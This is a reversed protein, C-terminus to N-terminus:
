CLTEEWGPLTAMALGEADVFDVERAGPGAILFLMKSHSADLSFNVICVPLKTLSALRIQPKM